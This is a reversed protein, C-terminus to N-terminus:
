KLYIKFIQISPATMEGKFSLVKNGNVTKSEIKELKHRDDVLYHEYTIKQSSNWPLNILNINFQDYINPIGFSSVYIHYDNCVLTNSTEYNSLYSNVDYNSIIVIVENPRKGSIAALNMHDTGSSSLRTSGYLQNFGKFAYYAPKGNGQCDTLLFDHCGGEGGNFTGTMPLSLQVGQEIMNILVNISHSAVWATDLQKHYSGSSLDGVMIFWEDNGLRPVGYLPSLTPYKQLESRVLKYNEYYFYYPNPSYAHFSFYDVPVHNKSCYKLFKTIWPSLVPLNHNERAAMLSPAVLIFKPNIAKLAKAWVAYTEFYDQQTGKWFEVLEPENGFRFLKVNWQHGNGWGQTLHKAVNQIYTTFKRLNIPKKLPAFLVIPEAGINFIAEIQKDILTFKYQTPDDLNSPFPEDTDMKVIVLRFGAERTLNFGSQEFYPATIAGFLYPNFTGMEKSYDISITATYKKNNEQKVFCKKLTHDLKKINTPIGLKEMNMYLVDIKNYVEGPKGDKKMKMIYQLLEPTVIKKVEEGKGSNALLIAWAELVKIRKEINENNTAKQNIEKVTKQIEEPTIIETKSIIKPLGLKEMKVYLKDLQNFAQNAKGNNKMKMINQLLEPTVIQKVEEGKGSNALLIAWAELVKIRKEINENNTVKQNMEKVTKQIEEPTIIKDTPQSFSKISSISMLILFLITLYHILLKNLM